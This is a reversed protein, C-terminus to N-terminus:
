APPTLFACRPGVARTLRADLTALPVSTEEALAIYWADYSTVNSRLEWAREAFPEYAFLEVRLSSIDSHALAAVDETINGAFVGRRLINAAEVPLLHPALLSESSILEEAWRGHARTDILAAVLTSADLVITM